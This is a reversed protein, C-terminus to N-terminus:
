ADTEVGLSVGRDSTPPDEGYVLEAIWVMSPNGEAIEECKECLITKWGHSTRWQAFDIYLEPEIWDCVTLCGDCSIPSVVKNTEPDIALPVRYVCPLELLRVM